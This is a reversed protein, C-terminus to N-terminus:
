LGGKKVLYNWHPRLIVANEPLSDADAPDGFVGQQQFGDLQQREGELWEKWANLKRLKRRSFHGMAAEEPTMENLDSM